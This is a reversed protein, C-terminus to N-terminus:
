GIFYELLVTLKKKKYKNLLKILEEKTDVSIDNRQKDDLFWTWISTANIGIRGKKYYYISARMSNISTFGTGMMLRKEFGIDVLDRETLRNNLRIM